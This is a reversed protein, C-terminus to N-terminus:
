FKMLYRRFKNKFWRQKKQAVENQINKKLVTAAKLEECLRLTCLM